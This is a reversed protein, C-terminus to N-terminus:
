YMKEIICLREQYIGEYKVDLYVSFISKEGPLENIKKSILSRNYVYLYSNDFNTIIQNNKGELFSIILRNTTLNWLHNLMTFTIPTKFLTGVCVVQAHPRDKRIRPTTIVLTQEEKIFNLLVESLSRYRETKLEM